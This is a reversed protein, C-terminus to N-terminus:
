VKNIIVKAPYIVKDGYMYCDSCFKEITKDKEAEESSIKNMKLVRHFKANFQNDVFSQITVGVGILINEIQEIVFQYSKQYIHKAEDVDPELKLELYRKSFFEKLQIFKVLIPKILIGNNVDLDKKSQEFMLSIIDMLKQENSFIREVRAQCEVLLSQLGSVSGDFEYQLAANEEVEYKPLDVCREQTASVELCNPYIQQNRYCYIGDSITVDHVYLLNDMEELSCSFYNELKKLDFDYLDLDSVSQKCSERLSILDGIYPSIQKYYYDDKFGQLEKNIKYISDDKAKTNKLLVSMTEYHKSILERMENYQADSLHLGVDRVDEQSSEQETENQKDEVIKESESIEDISVDKLFVYQINSIELMQKIDNSLDSDVIIVKAELESLEALSVTKYGINDPIDFISEFCLATVNLLKYEEANLVRIIENKTGFLVVAENLSIKMTNITLEKIYTISIFSRLALNVRCVAEYIFLDVKVLVGIIM